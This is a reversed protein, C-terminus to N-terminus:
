TNLPSSILRPPPRSSVCGAALAFLFVAHVTRPVSVLCSACLHRPRGVFASGQALRATM